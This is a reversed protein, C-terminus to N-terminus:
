VYRTRDDIFLWMLARMIEFLVDRPINSIRLIDLCIGDFIRTNTYAITPTKPIFYLKNNEHIIDYLTTKVSYACMIEELMIPSVVIGYLGYNTEINMLNNKVSFSKIKDILITTNTMRSYDLNYVSCLTKIGMSNSVFMTEDFFKVNDYYMKLLFYCYNM